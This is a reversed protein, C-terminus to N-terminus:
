VTTEALKKVLEVSKVLDEIYIHEDNTHNQMYGTSIGLMSIGNSNFRNADMGGGGHEFSCHLGMETMAKKLRQSVDEEESICFSPYNKEFSIRIEVDLQHRVREAVEHVHAEYREIDEDRSSRTEGRIIVLDCVVNTSKGGAISGFNATSTTSLRGEKVHTMFLGAAKIANVGAEPENGAHASRGVFEVRIAAKSIGSNIVRGIRGSSDLCYGIRSKLRSFDLHRTGAVGMEECVSFVVEIDGHSMGSEKIKKLGNLVTVVGAINDAALITNGNSKIIGESIVPEINLGNKVRDMHVSFLIPEIEEEGKMHAIINGTNGGLIEGTNDEHYSIGLENLKMKVKDAILRENGSEANTKVFDLFDNVIHEM